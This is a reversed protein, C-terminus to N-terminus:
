PHAPACSLQKALKDATAALALTLAINKRSQASTTVSVQKQAALYAILPDTALPRSSRAAADRFLVTLRDIKAVFADNAGATLLANRAQHVRTAADQNLFQCAIRDTRNLRGVAVDQRILTVVIVVLFVVLLLPVVISGQSGRRSM